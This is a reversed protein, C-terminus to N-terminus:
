DEGVRQISHPGFLLQMHLKGPTYNDQSWWLHGTEEKHVPIHYVRTVQGPNLDYYGAALGVHKAGEARDLSLTSNHGPQIFKKQFHVVSADFGKCKLLERVGSRNSALKQFEEPTKLQYVCLKTAHPYGEYSNLEKDAYVTLQLADPEYTWHVRDPSHAPAPKTTPVGSSDPKAKGGGCSLVLPLALLGLIGLWPSLGSFLGQFCRSNVEGIKGRM